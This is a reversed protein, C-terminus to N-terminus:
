DITVSTGVVHVGTECWGPEAGCVPCILKTQITACAWDEEGVLPTVGEGWEDSYGDWTWEVTFVLKANRCKPCIARTSVNQPNKM